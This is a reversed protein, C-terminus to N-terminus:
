QDKTGTDRNDVNILFFEENRCDGLSVERQKTKDKM